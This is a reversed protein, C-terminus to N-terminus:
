GLSRHLGLYMFVQLALHPTVHNDICNLGASTTEARQTYSNAVYFSIVITDPTTSELYLAVEDFATSRILDKHDHNKM